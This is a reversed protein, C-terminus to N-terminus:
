IMDRVDDIAKRTIELNIYIHELANYFDDHIGKFQEAVRYTYGIALDINGMAQDLDRKLIWRKQKPM